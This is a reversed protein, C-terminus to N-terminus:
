PRDSGAGEPRQTGAGWRLRGETLAVIEAELNVRAAAEWRRRGTDTTFLTPGAALSRLVALRGRRFADDDVQAYEGRVAAVYARYRRPPSALVALDADCLVAADPDDEAPRHGATLRVLRVVTDTTAPRMGLATLVQAALVASDEEDPGPAGRYVADHFWAALRVADPSTAHAALLDVADLVERLHRRDHYRRHPEDWRALLERGAALAAPLSGAPVLPTVLHRWAQELDDDQPPPPV